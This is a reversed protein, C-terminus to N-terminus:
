WALIWWCQKSAPWFVMVTNHFLLSFTIRRFARIKPSKSSFHRIKTWRSLECFIRRIKAIGITTTSAFKQTFIRKSQYNMGFNRTFIRKSRYTTGFNRPFIRMRQYNTGINWAFIREERIKRRIKSRFNTTKTYNRHTNGALM